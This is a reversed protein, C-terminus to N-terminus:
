PMFEFNYNYKGPSFKLDSIEEKRHNVTDIVELTDSKLVSVQGNKFGIAIIKGNPSYQCSRLEKDFVKGQLLVRKRNDVSWVRVTKDDSATCFEM